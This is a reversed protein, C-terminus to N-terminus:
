FCCFQPWAFTTSLVMEKKIVLAHHTKAYDDLSNKLMRAFRDSLQKTKEKTTNKHSLQIIFQKMVEEKDFTVVPTTQTPYLRAYAILLIVLIVAGNFGYIAKLGQM